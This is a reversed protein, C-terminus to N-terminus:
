IKKSMTTFIIEFYKEFEQVGVKGAVILDKTYSAAYGALQVKPDVSKRQFGGGAQAPEGPVKIKNYFGTKDKKEIQEIVYDSVNGAIFPIRDPTKTSYFGKDGNDFEISFSTNGYNDVKDFKTVKTVRAKKEM